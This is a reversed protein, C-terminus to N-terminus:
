PKFPPASAEEAAAGKAPEFDSGLLEAMEESVQVSVRGTPQLLTGQVVMTQDAM